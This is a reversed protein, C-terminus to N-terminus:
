TGIRLKMLTKNKDAIKQFADAGENGINNKALGLRYLAVNTELGKALAKAGDNGITNMAISYPVM